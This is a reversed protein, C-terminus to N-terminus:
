HQIRWVETDRSCPLCQRWGREWRQLWTHFVLSQVCGRDTHSEPFVAGVRTLVESARHWDSPLFIM